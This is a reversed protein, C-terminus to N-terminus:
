RKILKKLCREKLGAYLVLRRRRKRLLIDVYLVYMIATLNKLV